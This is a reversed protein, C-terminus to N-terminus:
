YKSAHPVVNMKFLEKKNKISRPNLNLDTYMYTHTYICMYIYLICTNM